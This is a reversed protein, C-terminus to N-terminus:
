FQVYCSEHPDGFSDDFNTEIRLRGGATTGFSAPLPITTPTLDKIIDGSNLKHEETGGKPTLYVDVDNKDRRNKNKVTVVISKISAKGDKLVYTVESSSTNGEKQANCPSKKPANPDTPAPGPDPEEPTTTPDETPTTPSEDSSVDTLQDDDDGSAESTPTDDRTFTPVKNKKVPEPTCGVSAVLGLVLASILLRRM